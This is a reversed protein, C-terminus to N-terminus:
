FEDPFLPSNKTTFREWYDIYSAHREPKEWRHNLNSYHIGNQEIYHGYLKIVGEDSIFAFKSGGIIANIAKVAKKHGSKLAIPEYIDRLFTESDTMDGRARISLIGNHFFAAHGGLTPWGHCNKINKSGHTAIRAHFVFANRNLEVFHTTYYNIMEKSDLTKFTELKGDHAWVIASGDPNTNLAKRIESITPANINKAKAIIVCM